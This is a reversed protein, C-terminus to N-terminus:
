PGVHELTTPLLARVVMHETDIDLTGGFADLRDVVTSADSLRPLHRAAIEIVLRGDVQEVHVTAGDAGALRVCELTEVVAFYATQEIDPECRDIAGTHVEISIDGSLAGFAPGLGETALLAPYIGHAVTRLEVVTRQADAALGDILDALEDHGDRSALTRAIGLKVNLAVVHQQAGDHLDRELRRREADQATVLRRRSRRVDDVRAELQETLALRRLHLAAVAAVDDLVTWDAPSVPDTRPKVISVAGLLEDRHEILRWVHTDSPEPLEAAPAVDLDAPHRGVPRFGDGACVWLCAAAAGTGRALLSALEDASGRGGSDALAASTRSLVELRTARDGYVLRNAWRQIRARVPEFLIAVVVTAVIPPGVGLGHDPHGILGISGAIVVAYVLTITGALGLFMVTKTVIVDIDYLRLRLIAIALAAPLLVFGVADVFLFQDGGTAGAPQLATNVGAIVTYMLFALGLWGIQRREVPGSRRWRRILVPMTGLMLVVGLLVAGDSIPLLDDALQQDVFPHPLVVDPDIVISPRALLGLGTHVLVVLAWVVLYARAAPTPRSRDPFALFLPVLTGASIPFLVVAVLVVVGAADLFGREALRLGVQQLTLISTLMTGFAIALLGVVNGPRRHVIIVGVATFGVNSVMQAAVGYSPITVVTVLLALASVGVAVRAITPSRSSVTTTEGASPAGTIVGRM